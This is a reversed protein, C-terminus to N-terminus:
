ASPAIMAHAPSQVFTEKDYYLGAGAGVLDASFTSPNRGVSYGINAGVYFGTWTAATPAPIAKLPMDAAIAPASASAVGAFVLAIFFTRM